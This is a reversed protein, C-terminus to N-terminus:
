LLMGLMMDNKLKWAYKEKPQRLDWGCMYGHVTAYTIIWQSGPFMEFVYDKHKFIKKLFITKKFMELYSKLIKDAM